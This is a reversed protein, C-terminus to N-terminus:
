EKNNMILVKKLNIRWLSTWIIEKMNSNDRTETGPNSSPHPNCFTSYLKLCVHIFIEM